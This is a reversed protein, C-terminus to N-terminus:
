LTGVDEEEEECDQDDVDEEEEDDDGADFEVVGQDDVDDEEEDDDGVDFEGGKDDEYIDPEPSGRQEDVDEGVMKDDDTFEGSRNRGEEDIVENMKGTQFPQRFKEELCDDEFKEPSISLCMRRLAFNMRSQCPFLDM